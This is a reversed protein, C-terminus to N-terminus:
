ANPVLSAEGSTAQTGSTIHTSPSTFTQSHERQGCNVLYWCTTALLLCATWPVPPSEQAVHTLLAGVVLAITWNTRANITNSRAVVVIMLCLLLDAVNIHQATAMAACFALPWIRYFDVGRLVVVVVVGISMLLAATTAANITSTAPLGFLFFGLGRLSPMQRVLWAEPEGAGWLDASGAYRSLFTPYETWPQLGTIPLSACVTFLCASGGAIVLRWRQMAILTVVPLVAYQPKTSMLVFSLAVIGSTKLNPTKLNPTKLTQSTLATWLLLWGVLVLLTMTGNVVVAATMPSAGFGILVTAISLHKWGQRHLLRAVWALVGVLLIVNIGVMIWSATQFEFGALPRFLVAVHPPNVFGLYREDPSVAPEGFSSIPYLSSGWNGATWRGAKWFAAFDSIPSFGVRLAQVVLLVQQFGLVGMLTLSLLQFV